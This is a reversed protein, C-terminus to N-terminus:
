RAKYHKFVTQFEHQQRDVEMTAGPYVLNGWNRERASLLKEVSPSSANTVFFTNKATVDVGLGLFSRALGLNLASTYFKCEVGIVVKSHRPHVQENRSTIAESRRIACVDFEHLVGSKGSVRVGLHAELPEVNPFRILAFTYARTQSWLYGPSTRFVFRNTPRDDPGRYEIEARERQAARLMISLIYAEFLDSTASMTTLSPRIGGTLMTTIENLLDDNITL